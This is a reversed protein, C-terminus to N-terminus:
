FVGNSITVETQSETTDLIIALVPRIGQALVVRITTPEKRQWM